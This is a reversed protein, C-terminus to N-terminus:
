VFDNIPSPPSSDEQNTPKNTLRVSVPLNVVPSSIEPIIDKKRKNKPSNLRTSPSLPSPSKMSTTPSLAPSFTEIPLDFPESPMEIDNITGGIKKLMVWRRGYANIGEFSLFVPKVGDVVLSKTEKRDYKINFNYGKMKSIAVITGLFWGKVNPEEWLYLVRKYVLLDPSISPPLEIMEYGSPLLSPPPGANKKVVDEIGEELKRLKDEERQKKRKEVISVTTTEKQFAFDLISKFEEIEEEENVIEEEVINPNSKPKRLAARAEARELREKSMFRKSKSSQRISRSPSGLEYDEYDDLDLDRPNPDVKQSASRMFISNRFFSVMGSFTLKNHLKPNATQIEEIFANQLSKEYQERRKKAFELKFERLRKRRLDRKSLPRPKNEFVEKIVIREPIYELSVIQGMLKKRDIKIVYKWFLYFSGGCCFFVGAAIYFPLLDIM